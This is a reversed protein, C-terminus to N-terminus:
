NWGFHQFDRWDALSYTGSEHKIVIGDDVLEEMIEVAEAINFGSGYTALSGINFPRPSSFHYYKQFNQMMEVIRSKKRVALSRHTPISIELQKCIERVMLHQQREEIQGFTGIWTDLEPVPKWAEVLMHSLKEKDAGELAARQIDAIEVRFEAFKQIQILHPIIIQTLKEVTVPLPLRVVYNADMQMNRLLRISNEARRVDEDANPTGLRFEPSSWWYTKWSTGSRTDQILKLAELIISGNLPGYIVDAIEALLLDPNKDPDCLLQASIFMSFLNAIHYAEMESWYVNPLIPDAAQRINNYVEKLVHGNVYMSPHQDTEYEATYWGWIGTEKVGFDRAEQRFSRCGEETWAAPFSSELLLYDQFGAKILAQLYGSPADWVDIGFRVQPNIKSFKSELLRMYKFTDEPNKLNGPDYYHGIVRDVYMALDSYKDYYKEFTKRVQPNEFASEGDPATYVAETDVWGYEDFCAAWVWLTVKQGCQHAIQAIQKLKEHYADISGFRSWMYCTDLLQVGNFGFSGMMKIYEELQRESFKFIDFDNSAHPNIFEGRVQSPIWPCLAWERQQVWPKVALRQEPLWLEEGDQKTIRILHYIAQQLCGANDAVITVLLGNEGKEMSLLYSDEGDPSQFDGFLKANETSTLIISPFQIVMEKSYPKIEPTIGSCREMYSLLDHVVPHELTEAFANIIQVASAKSHLLNTYSNVNM